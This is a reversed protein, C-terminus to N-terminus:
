GQRGEWSQFHAVQVYSSMGPHPTWCGPEALLGNDMKADENERRYILFLNPRVTLALTSHDYCGKDIVKWALDECRGFCRLFALAKTIGM